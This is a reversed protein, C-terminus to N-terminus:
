LIDHFNYLVYWHQDLLFLHNGGILNLGVGGARLSVLMVEPGKPNMNFEDVAETRKKPPINGKIISYKIKMRDLQIAVIELM